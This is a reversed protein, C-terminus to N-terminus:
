KEYKKLIIFILSSIFIIYVLQLLYVNYMNKTLYLFYVNLTFFTIYFLLYTILNLKKFIFKKYSIYRLFFSVTFQLVLSWTINNTLYFSSIFVLYGTVISIGGILYYVYLKTNNIKLLSMSIKRFM